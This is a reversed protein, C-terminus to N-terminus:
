GEDAWATPLQWRELNQDPRVTIATPSLYVMRYNYSQIAQNAYHKPLMNLKWQKHLQKIKKVKRGPQLM